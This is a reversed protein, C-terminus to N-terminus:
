YHSSRAHCHGIALQVSGPVRIHVLWPWNGLNLELEMESHHVYTYNHACATCLLTCSTCEQFHVVKTSHIIVSSVVVVVVLIIM